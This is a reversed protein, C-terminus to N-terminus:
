KLLVNSNNKQPCTKSQITKNRGKEKSHKKQNVLKNSGKIKKIVEKEKWNKSQNCNIIQLL